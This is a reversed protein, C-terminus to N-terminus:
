NSTNALGYCASIILLLIALLFFWDLKREKGGSGGARSPVRMARRDNEAIRGAVIYLFGAVLDLAGTIGVLAGSLLGIFAAIAIVLGTAWITVCQRESRGTTRAVAVYSSGRNFGQPSVVNGMKTKTLKNNNHFKLLIL